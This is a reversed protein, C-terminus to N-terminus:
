RLDLASEDMGVSNFLILRKVNLFHKLCLALFNQLPIVHCVEVPKYHYLKTVKLIVEIMM